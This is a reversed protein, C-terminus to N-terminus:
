AGGSAMAALRRAIGAENLEGAAAARALTVAERPDAKLAVDNVALLAYAALWGFVDNRAELPELRVIAHLLAAAATFPDAHVPRGLLEAQHRAHAAVLASYDRVGPDGEIGEALRLLTRLPLYRM